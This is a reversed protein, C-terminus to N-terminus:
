LICLLIIGVRLEIRWKMRFHGHLLFCRKCGHCEEWPSGLWIASNSGSVKSAVVDLCLMKTSELEKQKLGNLGISFM